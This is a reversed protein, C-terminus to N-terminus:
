VSMAIMAIAAIANNLFHIMISVELKKTKYYALAMVLGMLAYLTFQLIDTATHILGFCASGLIIGVVPMKKFLLGIFGARFVIEEMIPAAVAILLFLLLPHVGSFMSNIVQDNASMEQGSFQQILLTFVTAIVRLLITGALIILGNKLTLWSMDLDILKLKKALWVVLAINLLVFVIMAILGFGTLPESSLALTVGFGVMSLQSLVFLGFVIFFNKVYHLM